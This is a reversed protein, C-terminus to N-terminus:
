AYVFPTKNPRDGNLMRRLYQPNLDMSKAADGAYDYYIGYEVNLVLKARANVAGVNKSVSQMRLRTEETHKKGFFHNSEGFRRVRKWGRATRRYLGESIKRKHDESLSKGIRLESIKKRSEDTMKYGRTGTANPALNCNGPWDFYADLLEQERKNLAAKSCFLVFEISPKGYKDYAEQLLRNEHDGRRLSRLHQQARKYVNQSQGYYFLGKESDHWSIKYIGTWNNM